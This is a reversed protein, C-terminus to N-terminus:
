IKQIINPINVGIKVANTYILIRTDRNWFDEIFNLCTSIQLNSYFTRILINEKKWNKPLLLLNLYIAIKIANDIKKVFVIIKM